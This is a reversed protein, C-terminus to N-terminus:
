TLMGGEHAQDIRGDDRAVMADFRDDCRRHLAVVVCGELLKRLNQRPGVLFQRGRAAERIRRLGMLPYQLRETPGSDHVVRRQFLNLRLDCEELTGVDLQAVDHKALLQLNSHQARPEFAEQFAHVASLGVLTLTRRFVFPGRVVSMPTKAVGYQCSPPGACSWGRWGNGPRTSTTM